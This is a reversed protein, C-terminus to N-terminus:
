FVLARSRFPMILIAVVGDVVVAADAVDAVGFELEDTGFPTEDDDEDDEDDEEDDDEEDDDDDDDDDDDVISLTLLFHGSHEVVDVVLQKVM